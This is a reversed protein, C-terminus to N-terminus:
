SCFQFTLLFRSFVFIELSKCFIRIFDVCCQNIEKVREKIWFFFTDFCFCFFYSFFLTLFIVKGRGIVWSLDCLEALVLLYLVYFRAYRGLIPPAIYKVQKWHHVPVVSRCELTGEELAVVAGQRSCSVAVSLTTYLVTLLVVVILKMKKPPISIM